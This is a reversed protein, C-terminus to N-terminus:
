AAVRKCKTAQKSVLYHRGANDIGLLAIDPRSICHCNCEDVSTTVFAVQFYKGDSEIFLNSYPRDPSNMDQLLSSRFTAGYANALLCTSEDGPLASVSVLDHQHFLKDQSDRDATVHTICFLKGMSMAYLSLWANNFKLKMIYDMKIQDLTLTFLGSFRAFLTSLVRIM